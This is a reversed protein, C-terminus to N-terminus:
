IMFQNIEHDHLDKAEVAGNIGYCPSIRDLLKKASLKPMYTLTRELDRTGPRVFIAFEESAM